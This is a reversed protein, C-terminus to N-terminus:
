RLRANNLLGIFLNSLSIKASLMLKDKWSSNNVKTVRFIDSCKSKNLLYDDSTSIDDVLGLELAKSGYWHDGTSVKEIDVTPRNKGILEKFLVHTEDVKKKVKERADDTNEGLLTLTRKNDGATITEYDISHKKLLKNFNPTELVVGISGIISFPAAIIKNAVSAMMYGGSAAVKDVVVTLNIDDQVIRDLQSAGFGYGHVVGGPSELCVVVEDNGKEAVSLVATVEERLNDVQSASPDGDFDIVFVRSRQTDDAKNAKRELKKNRAIQKLKKDGLVEKQVTSKIDDFKKNINQISIREKGNVKSKISLGIIAAVVLIIALGATLVEAFFLGYEFLFQIVREGISIEM